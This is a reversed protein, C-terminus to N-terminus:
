NSSLTTSLMTDLISVGASPKAYERGGEEQDWACDRMRKFRSGEVRRVKLAEVRWSIFVNLVKMKIFCFCLGFGKM